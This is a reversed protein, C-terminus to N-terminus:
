LPAPPTRVASHEAQLLLHGLALLLLRGAMGLGAHLIVEKLFQEPGRCLSVPSLELAGRVTM